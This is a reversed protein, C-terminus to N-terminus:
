WCFNCFFNFIDVAVTDQASFPLPQQAALYSVLSLIMPAKLPCRDMRKGVCCIESSSLRVPLESISCDDGIDAIRKVSIRPTSDTARLVVHDHKKWASSLAAKHNNASPAPSASFLQWNLPSIMRGYCFGIGGGNSIKVM